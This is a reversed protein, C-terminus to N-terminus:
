RDKFTEPVNPVNPHLKDIPLLHEMKPYNITERELTTLRVYDIQKLNLFNIILKITLWNEIFKLSVYWFLVKLSLKLIDISIHTYKFHFQINLGVLIRLNRCKKM